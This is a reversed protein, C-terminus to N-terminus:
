EPDGALMFERAGPLIPGHKEILIAPNEASAAYFREEFPFLGLERVYRELMDFTFRDRIRPSAYRDVEEFPFPQGVEDFTWRGGDNMAVIARIFNLWETQHPGYVELIMAGYRKEVGATRRKMTDQVAVVHMGRCQLQQAFLSIVPFVDTGLHGNDFYATWTSATPVFM